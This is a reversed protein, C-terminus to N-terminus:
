RNPECYRPKDVSTVHADFGNMNGPSVIMMNGPTLQISFEVEGHRRTVRVRYYKGTLDRWSPPENGWTADRCTRSLRIAVSGDADTVGTALEAPVQYDAVRVGPEWFSDVPGSPELPDCDYELSVTAGALSSGPVSGTQWFDTLRLRIEQSTTRSREGLSLYLLGPTFLLAASVVPLRWNKRASHAVMPLEAM